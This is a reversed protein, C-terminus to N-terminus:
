DSLLYLTFRLCPRLTRPCWGAGLSWCLMWLACCLALVGVWAHQLRPRPFTTFTGPCLLHAGRGKVALAGLM